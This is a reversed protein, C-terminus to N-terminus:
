GDPWVSRSSAVDALHARNGGAAKATYMARDAAAMVHLLADGTAPGHSWVAGVSMTTPPGHVGPSVTRLESLTRMLHSRVGIAVVTFEEGGCRAIVATRGFHHTLHHATEILVADGVGHGYADNVAKFHDLDVAVVLVDLDDDAATDCLRRYRHELGGRNLLGTLPDFSASEAVRALGIWVRRVILPVGVVVWLLMTTGIIVAAASTTTEIAVRVGSWTVFAAVFVLHLVLGVPPVHMAVYTAHLAFLVCGFLALRPDDIGSLAVAFTVDAAAAFVAAPRGSLPRPTSVWLIVSLSAVGTLSWLAATGFGPTGLGIGAAVAGYVALSASGAIVAARVVWDLREDRGSVYLPTERQRNTTRHGDATM